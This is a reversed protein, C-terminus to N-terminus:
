ADPGPHFDVITAESVHRLIFRALDFAEDAQLAGEYAEGLSKDRSLAHLMAFEAPALPVLEVIFDSDRRILLSVGGSGLDLEGEWEASSPQNMKWITHLPYPSSLLRCAPHLVFKLAAHQTQPMKQLRGLELPAHDSAHFVEHMMWELRAVDPLYALQAAPPFESLFQPFHNGFGHIDGSVSPFLRMYRDAAYDFFREGVLREVVPYVARLAERYNHHMNNRYVSLRENRGVDKSVICALLTDEADDDEGLMASAFATQMEHLRM